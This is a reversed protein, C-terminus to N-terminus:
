KVVGDDKMKSLLKALDAIVEETNEKNFSKSHCQWILGETEVDFLNSEVRVINAYEAHGPDAVRDYM